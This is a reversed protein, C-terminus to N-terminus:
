SLNLHMEEKVQSLEKCKQKCIHKNNLVIVSMMLLVQSM